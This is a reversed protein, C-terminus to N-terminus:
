VDYIIKGKLQENLIRDDKIHERPRRRTGITDNYFDDRELVNNMWLYKLETYNTDGKTKHFSIITRKFNDKGINEIENKLIDSSGWYTM